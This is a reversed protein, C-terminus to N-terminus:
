RRSETRLEVRGRRPRRTPLQALRRHKTSDMRLGAEDVQLLVRRRQRRGAQLLIGLEFRQLDGDLLFFLLTTLQLRLQLLHTQAFDVVCLNQPEARKM